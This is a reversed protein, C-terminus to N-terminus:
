RGRAARARHELHPNPCDASSGPQDGSWRVAERNLAGLTSVRLSFRSRKLGDEVLKLMEDYQRVGNEAELKARAEATLSPLPEPTAPSSERDTM